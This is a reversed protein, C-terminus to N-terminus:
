ARADCCGLASCITLCVPNSLGTPSTWDGVSGCRVKVERPKICRVFFPNCAGLTRMLQDLSKKFQAGLTPSRKRTEAGM